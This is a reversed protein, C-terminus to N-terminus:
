ARRRWFLALLLWLGLLLRVPADGTRAYPPPALAPPLAADIIGAEGLALSDLVRGRGDIVASIGTNAARLLPLGQEIARMRGLAFHQYPGAFDGFWADNTALMLLRPRLPAAAVEAPFIGEYCILPMAPGIGPVEMVAPGPGASFGGGEAAALGHIGFRALLDGFPVYEGFPVLHHKDYLAAVEGQPDLLALANYYVGAGGRQVGLVVPAGGAADAVMALVDPMTELLWPLATEPWLVFDPAGPLATLDLLRRTYVPIAAPDTKDEQPVDPQVIRVMPAQPDDAPAPGPDLLPLAALLATPPVLALVAGARTFGRRLGLAMLAAALLTLLTLGEVGWLRLSQLLATESWVHGILAWPFGTFVVSRLAEAGAWLPALVLPGPLRARPAIRAALWFAAGWFLALGGTMAVLGFPAMWGDRAADVMFPRTIWELAVLFHGFGLAWGALFAGRRPLPVTMAVALAALAVFPLSFPVQGLAVLAGTTM